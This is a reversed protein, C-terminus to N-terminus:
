EVNQHREVEEEEEFKDFYSTDYKDKLKPIIPPNKTKRINEWDLGKFFPHKKAEELTKIRTSKDCCLRQILDRAEPSIACDEPFQLTHKWNITKRYTEQSTESCFPPFGILMEFMIVGVSWWDCAEDYGKM